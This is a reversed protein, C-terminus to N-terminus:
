EVGHHDAETKLMPCASFGCWDTRAHPHSCQISEDTEKFGHYHECRERAEMWIVVSQQFGNPAKRDNQHTTAERLMAEYACGRNACETPTSCLHFGGPLLEPAPKEASLHADIAALANRIADEAMRERGPGAVDYLAQSYKALEASLREREDPACARAQAHLAAVKESLAEFACDTSAGVIRVEWARSNMSEPMPPQAFLDRLAWEARMPGSMTYGPRDDPLQDLADLALKLASHNVYALTPCIVEARSIAGHAMQVITLLLGIVEAPTHFRQASLEISM